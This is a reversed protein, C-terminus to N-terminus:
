LSLVSTDPEIVVWGLTYQRRELRVVPVFGGQPAGMDGQGVDSRGESGQFGFGVQTGNMVVLGDPGLAAQEDGDDGVLEHLHDAGTQTLGAVM